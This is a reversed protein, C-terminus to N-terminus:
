RRGADRAQPGALEGVGLTGELVSQCVGTLRRNHSRSYSRIQDFADGISLQCREALMGKAREILIRSDLAAQLQTALLQSDHLARQQLIAIATADAFAQAVLVDSVDLAGADARFLNLAGIVQQRLRVPLAHVSRYGAGLAVPVFSPWRGDIRSLDQNVVPQGSRYCDLCPGQEAQLEFLEVIRLQDSSSALVRLHGDPDALLLGAATADFLEVCREVLRQTLEILDFDDVLTDALEVFTRALLQERQM